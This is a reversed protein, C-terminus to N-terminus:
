SGSFGLLEGGGSRMLGEGMVESHKMHLSERVVLGEAVLFDGPVLNGLEAVDHM